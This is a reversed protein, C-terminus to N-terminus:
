PTQGELCKHMILQGCSNEGLDAIGPLQGALNFGGKELLSRSARNIDLLVALLDRIGASRAYNEAAVLMYRGLGRGRAGRALYYSVEAVRRLAARGNRWPTLYFYGVAQGDVEVVQVEYPPTQHAEFWPRRQELSFPALDATHGGEAIIQNYIEVLAPLDSERAPRHTARSM